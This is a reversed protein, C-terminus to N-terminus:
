LRKLVAELVINAPVSKDTWLEFAKLGQYVLMKIGSVTQLNRSKAQKIFETDLPNYVLDYITADDPMSDIVYQEVPSVGAYKGLMGLPTTNVALMTDSLDLKKSYQYFNFTINSFNEKYFKKLVDLKSIDRSYFDIKNIGIQSLGIVVARSAGGTGFIVAKKGKLRLKQAESFGNVFGYVDTNFGHLEKKSDIKVTNVAGALDSADDMSDIFFTIPVKHPITINFGNYNNVKLYKVRSVLDEPPTPLLEYSGLMDLYEFATQHIIPSLSHGLPYGILAFKYM